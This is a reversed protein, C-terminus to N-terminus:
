LYVRINNFEIITVRRIKRPYQEGDPMVNLTDGASHFSTLVCRKYERIEGNEKVFKIQFPLRSGDAGTREMIDWIRSQKILKSMAITKSLLVVAKRPYYLPCFFCGM